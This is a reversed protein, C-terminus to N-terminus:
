YPFSKAKSWDTEDAIQQGASMAAKARIYMATLAPPHESLAAEVEGIRRKMISLLQEKTVPASGSAASPFGETVFSGM